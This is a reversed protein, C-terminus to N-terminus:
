VNSSNSADTTLQIEEPECQLVKCLWTLTKPQVSKIEGKLIKCLHVQRTRNREVLELLPTNLQTVRARIAEANLFPATLSQHRRYPAIGLAKRRRAVVGKHLRLHKALKEDSMTGLLAEEKPRWRRPAPGTGSYPAIGLAHRRRQITRLGIGSLRSLEADSVTGMKAIIKPPLTKPAPDPM